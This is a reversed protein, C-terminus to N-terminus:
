HGGQKPTHAQSNDRLTAFERGTKLAFLTWVAGAVVGAGPLLAGLAVGAQLALSLLLAASGKTARYVVMDIVMKARYRADFGLPVYLVEKCARFFSYDVIKFWALAAAAAWLTPNLWLVGLLALHSLPILLHMLRVSLLRLVLPTLLQLLMSGSNVMGWFRGEFASRADLGAVGLEVYQHFIVDLIAVMVQGLGVMFAIGGLYGSSFLTQV